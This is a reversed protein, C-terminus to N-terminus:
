PRGERDTRAEMLSAQVAERPSAEEPCDPAARDEYCSHAAIHASAQAAGLPGLSAGVVDIDWEMVPLHERYMSAAIDSRLSPFADIIEGAVIIARPNILLAASGLVYGVARAARELAERARADGSLVAARLEAIDSVGASECLAPVSALTELCGRKGCACSSDNTGVTMHGLEGALGGAGGVLRFDSVVCGGVGGSLRLYIFSSMDAGAGWMAEALAAMRVTNDVVPLPDWWRRTLETVEEVSPYADSSLRANRGMPIPVGVGVARVTSTDIGQRAASAAMAECAQELSLQLSPSTPSVIHVAALVTGNRSLMVGACSTRTVTLGVCHAASSNLTLLQTPRGRGPANTRVPTVSGEDLLTTLARGLNTRSTDLAECLQSRTAPAKTLHAVIRDELTPLPRRTPYHM